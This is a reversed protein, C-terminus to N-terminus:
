KIIERKPKITDRIADREKQKEKAETILTKVLQNFEDRQRKYENVEDNKSKIKSFISDLTQWEIDLKNKIEDIQNKIETDSVM